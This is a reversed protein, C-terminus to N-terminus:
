FPVPLQVQEGLERLEDVVKHYLLLEHQQQQYLEAEKEGHVFIRQQGNAKESNRLTSIYDDLIRKFLSPDIFADIRIAAFLHSVKPPADKRAYLNPGFESGSLVGSLIDVMFSLGFGKHGGGEENIGGLPLLGGGKKDRWNAQLKAIDQTSKGFEDVAWSEPMTKGERRYVELKGSPVTSTAMDLVVPQEKGAPVAISIPNTGLLTKTGHTPVVLPTSNTVSIGILDQKVAMRPYYGAMGYHNSDRVVAFAINNKLAKDIVLKMTKYAIVQGLGDGGSILLTNATEKIIKIDAVPKMVGMQLGNTYRKLRQLGHSGIGMQDSTILVHTVIEADERPVGLKCLVGTAFESVTKVELKIYEKMGEGKVLISRTFISCTSVM